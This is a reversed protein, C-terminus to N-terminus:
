SVLDWMGCGLTQKGCSLVPVAFYFYINFFFGVFQRIKMVLYEVLAELVSNFPELECSIIFHKSKPKQLWIYIFMNVFYFFLNTSACTGSPKRETHGRGQLMPLPRM